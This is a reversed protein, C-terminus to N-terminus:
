VPLGGVQTSIWSRISPLDVYISPGTACTSNNNGARSTAGILNWVGNVRRVQPGGSDGYCAGSNGNTNNTCIEYPGNIGSCRSDAVISTDLENAVAPASGCGRPACTQGWGIIRTATGVAGSTSPIPAPAYTVSSALQLLKVDVSPHNVARTVRVVTGGSSRNISGVRVSSPTSCHKATVAWNGKILTGTCGSVYVMFPYNETAPRGGVVLPSIDSDGNWTYTTSAPAALSGAFLSNVRSAEAASPNANRCSVPASSGSMLDSCLGTRRDPLGLIHGVEHTAIRTRDYGQNVATRGMWIRGSGLGTPQARPWGEDVYITISAPTGALLRVNSVRSNWIQAAQDFNTRFEGTRSADYYVTRVAAAPTGTALQIGAAALIAVLMALAARRLQGRFM